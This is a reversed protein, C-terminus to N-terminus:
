ERIKYIKLFDLKYTQFLIENELRHKRDWENDFENITYSQIYYAALEFNTLTKYRSEKLISEIYTSIDTLSVGRLANMHKLCKEKEKPNLDHTNFWRRRANRNANDNLM